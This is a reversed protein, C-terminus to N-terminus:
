NRGHREVAVIENQDVVLSQELAEDLKASLTESIRAVIGDLETQEYIGLKKNIPGLEAHIYRYLDDSLM